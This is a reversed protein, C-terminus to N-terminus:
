FRIWLHSNFFADLKEGNNGPGCAILVKRGKSPPHVRFVQQSKTKMMIIDVAM